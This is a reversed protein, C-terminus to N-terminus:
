GNQLIAPGIEPEGVDKGGLYITIPQALYERLRHREESDTALQDLGYPADETL